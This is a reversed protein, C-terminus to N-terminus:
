KDPTGLHSYGTGTGGKGPHRDARPAVLRQLAAPYARAQQQQAPEQCQASPHQECYRHSDFQPLCETSVQRLPQM